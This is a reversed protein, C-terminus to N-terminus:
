ITEASLWKKARWLFKWVHKSVCANEFGLGYICSARCVSANKVCVCRYVSGQVCLPKQVYISQCVCMHVCPLQSSVCVSSVCCVPVCLAMCSVSTNRLCLFKIWIVFRSARKRSKSKCPSAKLFLCVLEHVCLAKVLVSVGNVCSKQAFFIVQGGCSIHKTASVKARLRTQVCVSKQM